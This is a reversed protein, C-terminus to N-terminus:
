DKDSNTGSMSSRTAARLDSLYRKAEVISKFYLRYTANKANPNEGYTKEFDKKSGAAIGQFMQKLAPGSTVNSTGMQMALTLGGRFLSNSGVSPLAKGIQGAIKAALRPMKLTAIFGLILVLIGISMLRNLHLMKLRTIRLALIIILLPVIIGFLGFSNGILANALMAGSRGCPNEFTILALREPNGKFKAYEVLSSCDTKWPTKEAMIAMRPRIPRSKKTLFSIACSNSINLRSRSRTTIPITITEPMTIQRTLVYKTTLM